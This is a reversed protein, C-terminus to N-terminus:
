QQKGRQLHAVVMSYIIICIQPPKFGSQLKPMCQLDLKCYIQQPQSPNYDDM